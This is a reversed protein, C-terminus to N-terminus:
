GGGGEPVEKEPKFIAHKPDAAKAIIYLFANREKDLQLQEELLKIEYLGM